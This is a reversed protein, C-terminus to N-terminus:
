ANIEVKVDNKHFLNIKRTIEGKLVEITKDLEEMFRDLDEDQWKDSVETTHLIIKIEALKM